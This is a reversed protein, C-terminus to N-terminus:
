VSEAQVRRELRKDTLSFLFYSVHTSLSIRKESLKYWECRVSIWCDPTVSLHETQVKAMM